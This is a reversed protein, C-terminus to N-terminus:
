ANGTQAWGQPLSINFMWEIGFKDVVVGFMDGCVQEELPSGARGDAALKDYWGRLLDVDDGMFALYVRAGGWTEQAGSRADCAMVTFADHKLESHMTGDAPMDAIGFDSFTNVTLEGGFVSQYYTMAERTNGPFNLYPCVFFTM